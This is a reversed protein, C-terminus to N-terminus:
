ACGSIVPSRRSRARPRRSGSETTGSRCRHRTQQRAVDIEVQTAQSHARVNRIAEQAVRYLLAEVDEPLELDDPANIVVRIGSSRLPAVPDGLAGALGAQQLTPPYIDVLPTRLERIMERTQAAATVMASHAAGPRAAEGTQAASAALSLSV